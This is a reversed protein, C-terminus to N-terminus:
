KPAKGFYKGSTRQPPAGSEPDPGGDGNAGPDAPPPDLDIGFNEQLWSRGKGYPVRAGQGKENWIEIEFESDDDPADRLAALDALQKEQEPTLKGM